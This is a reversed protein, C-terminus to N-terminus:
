FTHLLRQWARDAFAERDVLNAHAGFFQMHILM